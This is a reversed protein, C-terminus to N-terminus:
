AGAGAGRHRRRRRRLRAITRRARMIAHLTGRQLERQSRTQSAPVTVFALRMSCFIGSFCSRRMTGGVGTPWADFAATVSTNERETILSPLLKSALPWLAVTRPTCGSRHPQLPPLGRNGPPGGTSPRVQHTVVDMRRKSGVSLQPFLRLHVTRAFGRSRDQSPANRCGHVPLLAPKLVDCRASPCTETLESSAAAAVSPTQREVRFSSDSLCTCSHGDSQKTFTDREPADSSLM